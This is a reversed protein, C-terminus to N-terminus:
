NRLCTNNFMEHVLLHEHLKHVNIVSRGLGQDDPQLTDSLRGRDVFATVDGVDLRQLARYVPAPEM